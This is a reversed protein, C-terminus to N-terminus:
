QRSYLSLPQSGLDTHIARTGVAADHDFVLRVTAMGFRSLDLRFVYPDHADDPYLPLGRYLAPIPTLVRLMLRGGRVFVQVGGGMMVRGRLDAVRKPLRYWGIIEDWIEQHPPIDGRVGEDPVSLLSRLVDGIEIPLWISAGSSGNTFAFLGLGDNPAVFLESNFGPLIGEHSIVLHGGFDHRFFALGISSVHPDPQYHPAFM